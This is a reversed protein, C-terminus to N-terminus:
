IFGQIIDKLKLYSESEDFDKNINIGIFLGTGRRFNKEQIRPFLLVVDDIANVLRDCNLDKYKLQGYDDITSDTETTGSTKEILYRLNRYKMEIILSHKLKKNEDYFMLIYDPKCNISNVNVIEDGNSDNYRVCYHDYLLRISKGDDNKFKFESDSDFNFINNIGESITYGLEKLINQLIVFGYLEFISYSRRDSFLNVENKCHKNGKLSTVKKYFDYFFKYNYDTYFVPSYEIQNNIEVNIFEDSVLVKKIINLCNIYSEKWQTFKKIWNECEEIISNM